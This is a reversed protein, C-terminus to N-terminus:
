TRAALQPLQGAKAEELDHRFWIQSFEDDQYCKGSNREPPWIHCNGEIIASDKRQDKKICSNCCRKNRVVDYCLQLFRPVRSIVTATM